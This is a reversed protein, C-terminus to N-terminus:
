KNTLNKKAQLVAENAPFRQEALNFYFTMSDINKMGQYTYAINLLPDPNNPLHRLATRNTALAEDFKGTSFYFYSLRSYAEANNPELALLHNFHVVASDLNNKQQYLIALNLSLEPLQHDPLINVAKQFYTMMSDPNNLAAYVRGIDYAVNFTHPYIALSQKFHSLAENRLADLQPASHQGVTTSKMINLALLNHAQASNNVYHIDKRMLTLHDKWDFNRAFTFGSYLLLPLLLVLKASSTLAAWDQIPKKLIYKETIFFLGYGLLMCWGLSSVLLYRDAVIGPVPMFFGSYILVTALYIFLAFAVYKNVRLLGIALLLLLLHIGLSVLNATANVAKPVIYGYGYYFSLPYDVITKKLYHQMTTLALGMKTDLTANPPLPYEIFQLPRDTNKEVVANVVNLADQDSNVQIIVRNLNYTSVQPAFASSLALIYVLLAWQGNARWFTVGKPWYVVSLVALLSFLPVFDFREFFQTGFSSLNTIVILSGLVVFVVPLVKKGLSLRSLLLVVFLQVFGLVEDHPLLSLTFLGLLLAPLREVKKGWYFVFILYLFYLQYPLQEYRWLTYRATLLEVSLIASLLMVGLGFSWYSVRRLALFVSGFFVVGMLPVVYLTNRWWLYDVALVVVVALLPYLSTLSLGALWPKLGGFIEDKGSPDEEARDNIQRLLERASFGRILVYFVAVAGLLMAVYWMKYRAPNVDLFAYTIVALAVALPLVYRLGKHSFLLLLLPLLLSFQLFTIKSLIALLYFFPVLLMMWWQDSRAALLAYRMALVSFLLGLLEDRNKISCVVETHATFASFLLVVFLALAPTVVGGLLLLFKYLAVCLGIYLLLNLLHGMFPSEGFFQHELAFSALVMPRYEYAYGMNDQYYPSTFIEPIASIGQSTLRHNKTVLEDDMNYGNGLTNAYLLFTFAAIILLPAHSSFWTAQRAKNKQKKTKEITAM